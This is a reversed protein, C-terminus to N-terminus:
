GLMNLNRIGITLVSQDSKDDIRNQAQEYTLADESRFGCEFRTSFNYFYVRFSHPLHSVVSSILPSSTFICEFRTPFIHFWVRFSHPLDLKIIAKHFETNVIEADPTMEWLCSFCLREVKGRFFVSTQLTIKFREWENPTHNQIKGVRKSHLKSDKCSM